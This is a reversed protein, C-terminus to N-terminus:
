STFFCIFKSMLASYEGSIEFLKGLGLSKLREYYAMRLKLGIARILMASIFDAIVSVLSYGFIPQIDM